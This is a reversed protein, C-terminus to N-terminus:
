LEELEKVAHQYEERLAETETYVQTDKTGTKSKTTVNIEEVESESEGAIWMHTAQEFNEAEHM